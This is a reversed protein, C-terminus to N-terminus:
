RAPRRRRWASATSCRAPSSGTSLERGGAARCLRAGCLRRRLDGGGDQQLLGRDPQLRQRPGLTLSRARDGPVLWLALWVAAVRLAQALSRAPRARPLTTASCATPRRDQTRAAATAAGRQFAAIARARRRRLRDAGAGLIILPFPVDFFFIAVFAPAPSRSWRRQEQARAQRRPGGGRARDGAGGGEPRLVAGVILPVNGYGAYVFSLAM